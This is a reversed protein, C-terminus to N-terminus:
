LGDSMIRDAMKGDRKSAAVSRGSLQRIVDSMMPGDLLRQTWMVQMVYITLMTCIALLIQWGYLRNNMAANYAVYSMYTPVGFRCPFWTLICALRALLRPIGAPVVRQGILFVAAVPAHLVCLFM